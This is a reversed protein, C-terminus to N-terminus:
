KVKVGLKKAFFGELENKKQKSAPTKKNPTTRTAAAKKAAAAVEDKKTTELEWGYYRYAAELGEKMTPLEGENEERFEQGFIKLFRGIKRAKEPDSVAEPHADIFEAYERKSANDLQAKIHASYTDLPKEGPETGKALEKAGEEGFLAKAVDPKAKIADLLKDLRGKTEELVGNIRVTEKSSEIYSKEIREANLSGDDNLFQKLRPKYTDSEKSKKTKDADEADDDEDPDEEESDEDDDKKGGKAAEKSKKKSDEDEDDTADDDTEDESELDDDTEVEEDADEISDMFTKWDDDEKAM